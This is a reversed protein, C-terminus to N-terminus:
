VKGEGAKIIAYRTCSPGILQFFLTTAAIVSIATVGLEIGADGFRGGGLELMTQISLGIAVGAQSFLCLGLYKRVNEPADSIVGGLSSGAQKGLSRFVIYLLGIWGLSVLKGAQLQSGVLVFFIVFLPQTVGRVIEFLDERRWRTLNVIAMGMAMNALILSFHLANALGTTLVIVGLTLVLLGRRATYNRVLFLFALGMATGLGLSGMIEGVPRLVAEAVHVESGSLALKALFIAFAYIIIAIGDDIGVVAFVTTTLPGSAQYERLVDVTAAPATASALAGFVLATALKRTYLYVAVTVLLTAGASELLSIWLIPKGLHKLRRLALEGGIDFGIFALALYTLYVLGPFNDDNFISFMSKGMIIGVIIYGVVMPVKLRRCLLGAAWGSLLALGVMAVVFHPSSPIIDKLM